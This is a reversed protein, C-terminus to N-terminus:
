KGERKSIAEKRLREQEKLFAEWEADPVQRMYGGVFGVEHGHARSGNFRVGSVREWILAIDPNDDTKLGPWYVWSSADATIRFNGIVQKRLLKINGSLGALPESEPLYRPCLLRLSDLPEGRADPFSGSNQHGYDGLAALMLPLSAPRAGYPYYYTYAAYGGLFLLVAAFFVWLLRPMQILDLNTKYFQFAHSKVGRNALKASDAM